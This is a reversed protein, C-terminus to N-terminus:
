QGLSKKLDEQYKNFLYNQEKQSAFTKSLHDRLFKEKSQNKSETNMKKFKSDLEILPHHIHIGVEKIYKDPDEILDEYCLNYIDLLQIANGFNHLNEFENLKGLLNKYNYDYSDSLQDRNVDVFQNTQQAHDWSVIQSILDGRYMHIYKTQDDDFIYRLFLYTNLPNPEINVCGLCLRIHDYTIKCAWGNENEIKSLNEQVFDKIEHPKKWHTRLPLFGKLLIEYRTTENEPEDPFACPIGNKELIGMLYHSGARRSHLIVVKSM